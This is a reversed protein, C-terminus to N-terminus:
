LWLSKLIVCLPTLSSTIITSKSFTKHHAIFKLETHVLSKTKPPKNTESDFLYQWSGTDRDSLSIEIHGRLAFFIFHDFYNFGMDIIYTPAINIYWLKNTVTELLKM